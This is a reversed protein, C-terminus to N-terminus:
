RRAPLVAEIIRGIDHARWIIVIALVVLCSFVFIMMLRPPDPVARVV